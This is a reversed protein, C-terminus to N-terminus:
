KVSDLKLHVMKPVFGFSVVLQAAFPVEPHLRALPACLAGSAVVESQM